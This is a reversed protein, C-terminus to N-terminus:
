IFSYEFTWLPRWKRDLRAVSFKSATLSFALFNKPADNSFSIINVEPEIFIPFEGQENKGYEENCEFVRFITGSETSWMKKKIAPM